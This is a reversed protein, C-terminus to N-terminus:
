ARVKKQIKIVLNTLATIQKKLANVMESVQTSLAAVADAADQAAATAADAAEAAANAADTAANAADTAEAAADSAAQATDPIDVSVTASAVGAADFSAGVGTEVTNATGAKSATIALLALGAATTSNALYGKPASTQGSGFAGAASAPNITSVTVDASGGAVVFEVTGNAATAGSTRTVGSGFYGTGTKTAYVTVGPVPNGFRDVVKATVMPGSVTASVTREEGAATQAFTVEATATKGGVTATVTYTGAVWGYVQATHTGAAGTYGNATISTVALKTADSVTWAVPLGTLLGGTADKVTVTFGYTSLNAGDGANIDRETKTVDTVGATTNGGTITATSVTAVGYNVTATVTTGGAFSVTDSTGTTGTDTLTYSVFGSADSVMALTKGANRGATVTATVAAGPFAVGFQDVIKSTFTMTSGTAANVIAPSIAGTTTSAPTEASVTLAGATVTIGAAAVTYTHSTGTTGSVAGLTATVTLASSITAGGGAQTVLAQYAAGEKGTIAGTTDTVTLIITDAATATTEGATGNATLSKVGISQSTATSSVKLTTTTLAFGTTAVGTGQQWVAAPGTAVNAAVSSSIALTTTLTSTSGLVGGGTLTVVSANAATANKINTWATGTAFDSTGLSVTALGGTVFLADGTTVALDITENAALKTANGAADKLTIKLVSGTSGGVAITSGISSIAATAPAGATTMTVVANKDGATFTSNGTSLLLTYTGAVDPTIVVDVYNTTADTTAVAMVGTSKTASASPNSAFTGNEFKNGLRAITVSSAGGANLDVVDTAVSLDPKSSLTATVTMTDTGAAAAAHTIAFRVTTAQGVRLPGPTAATVGTAAVVAASAPAVSTLVGFGLSAVAVLAVRKFTTKTSM